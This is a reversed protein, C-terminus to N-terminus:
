SNCIGICINKKETVSETLIDVDYILIIGWVCMCVCVCVYVYVYIYLYM